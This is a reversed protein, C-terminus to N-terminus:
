AQGEKGIHPYSSLVELREIWSQWKTESCRHRDLLVKTILCHCKGKGASKNGGIQEILLLGALLLLLSYTPAPLGNHTDAVGPALKEIPVCLLAGKISGEFLLDPAGFESTYLAEPVATRTLRDIRVQTFVDTQTDGRENMYTKRAEDELRADNFHLTGAHLQSGFIRSILSPTKGFQTLAFYTNHPSEITMDPLYFRCLRECHERLVGKFTSAPVYLHGSADRIVTRDILGTTVGTGLHFPADFQLTYDIQVLM